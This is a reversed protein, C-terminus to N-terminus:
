SKLHRELSFLKGIWTQGGGRLDRNFLNAVGRLNTWTFKPESFGLDMLHCYDMCETYAQTRCICIPNGGYKEDQSIMENFDGMIAWPLNHSDSVTILNNWLLCRDM